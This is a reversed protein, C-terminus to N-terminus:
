ARAAAGRVVAGMVKTGAKGQLTADSHIITASARESVVGQLVKRAIRYGIYGPLAAVVAWGVIGRTRLWVVNYLMCRSALAALLACVM